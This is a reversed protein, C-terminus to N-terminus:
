EQVRTVVIVGDADRAVTGSYTLEATAESPQGPTCVPLGECGQVTYTGTVERELSAGFAWGGDAARYVLVDLDSTTNGNTVALRPVWSTSPWSPCDPGIMASEVCANIWQWAQATVAAIVEGSPEPWVNQPTAGPVTQEFPEAAAIGDPDVYALDYTGPFVDVANVEGSRARCVGDITLEGSGYLSLNADQLGLYGGDAVEWGNEHPSIELTTTVQRDNARLFTVEVEARGTSIGDPMTIATIEAGRPRERVQQYLETTVLEPCVVDAGSLGSLELATEADGNEIAELYAAAVDRVREEKTPQQSSVFWTGAVIAVLAGVVITLIRGQRATSIGSTKEPGAQPEGASM